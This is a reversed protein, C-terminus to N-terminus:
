KQIFYSVCGVIRTKIKKRCAKIPEKYNLERRKHVEMIVMKNKLMSKNLSNNMFDNTAPTRIFGMDEEVEM